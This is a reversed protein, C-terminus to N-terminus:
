QKNKRRERLQEALTPRAKNLDISNMGKSRLLDQLTPPAGLEKKPPSWIGRVRKIGRKIIEGVRKPSFGNDGGREM